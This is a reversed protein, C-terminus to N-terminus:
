IDTENKSAMYRKIDIQCGRPLGDIMIRELIYQGEWILIRRNKERSIKQYLYKKAGEAIDGTSILFIHDPLTTINTESDFLECEFAM